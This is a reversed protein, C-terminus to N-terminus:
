LMGSAKHAHLLLDQARSPNGLLEAIRAVFPTVDPPEACSPINLLTSFLSEWFDRQCYGRNSGPTIEVQRKFKQRAAWVGNAGKAVDMYEGFLMVHICAVVGYWDTQFTWPRGDMMETCKFCNTQVVETFVTGPQFQHQDIGRGFDILQLCHTREALREVCDRETPLDFVLVNDPKLDGHIIGCKHVASVILLLELAFYLAMSEPIGRGGQPQQEQYRRVLDLLTGYQGFPMVLIAGNRYLCAAEITVVSDL